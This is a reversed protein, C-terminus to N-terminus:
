SRTGAPEERAWRSLIEGVRSPDSRLLEEVRARALLEPDLAPDGAAAPAAASQGARAGRLARVLLALFVLAAALEVGRRLLTELLPNPASPAPEEAAPEPTEPVFFPLVVSSFTDGREEDFGVSARVAQEIGQKQAEPLSQDLYLAVSLRELEPVFRVREERSVSPAYEKREESTKEVPPQAAGADQSGGALPATPDLTNASLGAPETTSALTGVPKESSTRTESVVQGKDNKETQLTSRSYDWESSVSVRAKNPGLIQELVASAAASLRQDYEAQHALLDRVAREGEDEQAGDFLSRGTQDSVVLHERAIGLGRSVLNAVTTAQAPTLRAEDALRLAVSATPPTDRGGLPASSGPATRVSAALVFDLEELMKEMEEWERKRVGQAREEASHFVSAMGDESLIGKLPKDLAGAGYAAMYAASRQDGDVYVSFPAPPQSVQFPLGAESLAKNVEAVEHDTLGSFALEYHPRSAVWGALGLIAVLTAGVLAAVLKTGGSAKGLGALLQKLLDNM